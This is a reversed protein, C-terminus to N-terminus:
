LAHDLLSRGEQEIHQLAVQRLLAVQLGSQELHVQHVRRLNRVGYQAVLHEMVVVPRANSLQTLISPQHSPRQLM